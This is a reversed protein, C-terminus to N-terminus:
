HLTPRLVWLLAREDDANLTVDRGNLNFVIVRKM